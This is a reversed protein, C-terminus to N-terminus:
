AQAQRSRWTRVWDNIRTEGTRVNGLVLGGVFHELSRAISGWGISGESPQVNSDTNKKGEGQFARTEVTM